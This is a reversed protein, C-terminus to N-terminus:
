IRRAKRRIVNYSQRFIQSTRFIENLFRKGIYWGSRSVIEGLIQIKLIEDKM